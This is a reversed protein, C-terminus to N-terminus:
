SWTWLSPPASSTGMDNMGKIEFDTIGELPNATGRPYYFIVKVPETGGRKYVFLFIHRVALEYAEAGVFKERWEGTSGSFNGQSRSVVHSSINTEAVIRIPIATASSIMEEKSCGALQLMVTCAIVFLINMTGNKM